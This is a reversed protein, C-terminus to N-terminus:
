KDKRVVAVEPWIPLLLWLLALVQVALIIGFAVSYAVPPYHGTASAPWLAIIAGIAYQAVFSLGFMIVNLGTNSRASYETPFHQSLIPFALVSVVSLPGFLVWIWHGAPDVRAVLLVQVGLFLVAGITIMRLMSVRFRNSLFDAVVGDGAYGVALMAALLFLHSAVGSRDLAAVDRLWPGAWLGQIAMGAAMTTAALPAVRWFLRDRYVLGLGGWVQAMTGPAASRPKEPVAFFVAVGAAVTLLALLYFVGRWDTVRLAAEVPATAAIAGLGGVGMVCGNVLAWRERPFWLVIAKFSAMLAVAVGAGILARGVVLGALSGSAGFVGAGCAAVFLLVTQTRRPGFRDLAVGVPLQMVAFALFYASTLLGLSRAGVHLDAMLNPALVANVSRFLYSLFYGLAFPLYVSLILTWLGPVQVRTVDTVVDVVGV